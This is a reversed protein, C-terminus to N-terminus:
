LMHEHFHIEQVYEISTLISSGAPHPFLDLTAVRMVKVMSRVSSLELVTGAIEKLVQNFCFLLYIM